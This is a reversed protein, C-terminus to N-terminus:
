IKLPLAYSQPNTKTTFRTKFCCTIFQTSNKKTFLANTEINSLM